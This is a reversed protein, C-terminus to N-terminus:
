PLYYRFSTMFMNDIGHPVSTGTGNTGTWADRVLYSYQPGFQLRGHPGQHLRIWFGVTGEILRQTDVSCGGAFNFGTTASSSPLGETYCGSVSLSPPGYGVEKGSIPDVSWRKGTYEEGANMYWDLKKL